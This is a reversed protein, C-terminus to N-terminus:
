NLTKLFKDIQKTLEEVSSDNRIIMTVRPNSSMDHQLAIRQLASERTIGGRSMIRELRLELPADVWLVYDGVGDFFPKQLITASEMVVFEGSQAKMWANFDELLVPFLANELATLAEPDAFIGPRVMAALEPHTLYLAKAHADCDYVPIGRSSMMGCVLTKGSGINGTVIVVKM